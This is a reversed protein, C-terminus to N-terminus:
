IRFTKEIFFPQGSEYYDILTKATPLLESEVSKIDAQWFYEGKESDQALEGSADTAVLATFHTYSELDDGEYVTFYGSGIYNFMANIGTKALLEDHASSFVDKGIEPNVHMFGIKGLLPHTQRKFLLWAGDSQRRIVLFLVSHARDLAMFQKDLVGVGVRRGESTLTYLGDNNKEVLGARIVLKLHYDFLKNDLEGPKLQSFRLGQSFALKYVIAKQIHHELM